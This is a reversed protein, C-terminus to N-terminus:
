KRKISRPKFDLPSAKPKPKEQPKPPEEVKKEKEQVKEPEKTEKTPKEMAMLQERIQEKPPTAAHKQKTKLWSREAAHSNGKQKSWNEFSVNSQTVTLQKGELKTGSLQLAKRAAEETAYEAILGRRHSTVAFHELPGCTEFLDRLTEKATTTCFGKAYVTRLHTEGDGPAWITPQVPHPTSTLNKPEVKLISDNFTEGDAQLAQAAAEPTKLTIFASGRSTGKRLQISVEDVEGFRPNFFAFVDEQSATKPLNQVYVTRKAKEVDIPTSGKTKVKKEAAEESSEDDVECAFMGGAKRKEMTKRKKGAAEVVKVMKPDVPKTVDVGKDKEGLKKLYGAEKRGDVAMQNVAEYDVAVVKSTDREPQGSM